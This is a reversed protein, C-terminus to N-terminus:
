KDVSFNTQNTKQWEKEYITGVIKEDNLDGMLYARSISNKVKKITFNKSWNTTYVKSFINKYNSMREHDGAKFKPDKDNNEVDFSNYTGSKNDTPMSKITWHYTNNYKDVINVLKDNYM